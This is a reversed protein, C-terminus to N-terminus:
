ATAGTNRSEVIKYCDIDLQTLVSAGLCNCWMLPELMTTTLPSNAAAGTAVLTGDCYVTPVGGTTTVIEWVHYVGATMVIGTDIDAAVVGARVQRLVYNAGVASSYFVLIANGAVAGYPNAGAPGDSLGMAYSANASQQGTFRMYTRVADQSSFNHQQGADELWNPNAVAVSWIRQIGGRVNDLEGSQAAIQIQLEFGTGPVAGYNQQHMDKCYDIIVGKPLVWETSVVGPTTVNFITSKGSGHTITIVNTGLSISSASNFDMGTGYTPGFFFGRFAGALPSGFLVANNTPDYTIPIEGAVGADTLTTMGTKSFTSIGGGGVATTNRFLIDSAAAAAMLRNFGSRRVIQIDRQVQMLEMQLEYLSERMASIDSNGGQGTM